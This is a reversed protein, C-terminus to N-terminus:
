TLASYVDLTQEISTSAAKPQMDHQWDTLQLSIPQLVHPVASASVPQIHQLLHQATTSLHQVQAIATV